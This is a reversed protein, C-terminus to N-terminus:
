SIKFFLILNFPDKLNNLVFDFSDLLGPKALFIPILFALPLYKNNKTFGLIYLLDYKDQKIIAYSSIDINKFLFASFYYVCCCELHTKNQGFM